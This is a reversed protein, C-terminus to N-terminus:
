INGGILRIEFVPLYRGGISGSERTGKIVGGAARYFRELFANSYGWYAKSRMALESLHIAEYPVADRIEIIM